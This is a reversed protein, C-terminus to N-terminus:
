HHTRAPPRGLRVIARALAANFRNPGVRFTKTELEYRHGDNSEVVLRLLLLIRRTTAKFSGAPWHTLAPGNIVGRPTTPYVTIGGAHVVLAVVLPLGNAATRADLAAVRRRPYPLTPNIAEVVPLTTGPTAFIAAGILPRPDDRQVDEILRRMGFPQKM